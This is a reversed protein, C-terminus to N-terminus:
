DRKEEKTDCAGCCLFLFVIFSILAFLMFILMVIAPGLFAEMLDEGNEEPDRLYDIIDMYNDTFTNDRRDRIDFLERYGKSVASISDTDCYDEVKETATSEQGALIQIMLFLGLVRKLKM